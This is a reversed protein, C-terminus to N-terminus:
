NKYKFSCLYNHKQIIIRNNKELKNGFLNTVMATSCGISTLTHSANKSNYKHCVESHM